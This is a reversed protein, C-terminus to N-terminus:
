KIYHPSFLVLLATYGIVYECGLVYFICEMNMPYIQLNMCGKIGMISVDAYVQFAELSCMKKNGLLFFYSSLLEVKEKFKKSCINLDNHNLINSRVLHCSTDYYKICQEMCM